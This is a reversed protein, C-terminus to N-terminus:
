QIKRGSEGSNLAHYIKEYAEQKDIKNAMM